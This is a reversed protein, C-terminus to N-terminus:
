TALQGMGPKTRGITSMNDVEKLRKVTMKKNKMDERIKTGLRVVTSFRSKEDDPMEAEPRINLGGQAYQHVLKHCVTCLTILNDIDDSGGLYVEQIHHIDLVETFEQGGCGCAQCTNNDRVLVSKRLTPDLRERNKYDQKHPEFGQMEKGDQVMEDLKGDEVPESAESKIDDATTDLPTCDEGSGVIGQGVLEAKNEAFARNAQEAELKAKTEKKRLNQVKKYAQSIGFKGKMLNDIIDDYGSALVDKLKTYDGTEFQMLYEIKNADTINREKELYNEIFEVAEKISYARHHNYEAELLPIDDVNARHNVICPIKTIGTKLCATCRQVGDIIAYGGDPSEVVVLPQLLGTKSISPILSTVDPNGERVRVEPFSLQEATLYELKFKPEEGTDVQAEAETDSAEVSTEEVEQEITDQVTEETEDSDLFGFDDLNGDEFLGLSVKKAETSM